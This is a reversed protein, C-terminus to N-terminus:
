LTLSLLWGIIIIISVGGVGCIIKRYITNRLISGNQMVQQQLILDIKSSVSDEQEELVRWINLTREDIRALWERDQNNM